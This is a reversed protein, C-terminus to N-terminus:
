AGDGALMDQLELANQAAYGVQDNDFHCYVDRGRRLQTSFARAWGALARPSYKGRYPGCPGHLRVYIFDATVKKPSQRGHFDYICLAANHAELMEYAESNLWDPDRLEFAYRHGSPLVELFAALREQNFHWNPPLQFLIPGLKDSLVEILTLFTAVPEDPDKIKEIHTIYRSAKVAFVFGQPVTERWNQLTEQAPLQYFTNNVEVTDLHAAYHELYDGEAIGEPYFPGEWHAYHWGSTGIHIAAETM